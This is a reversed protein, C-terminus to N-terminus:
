LQRDGGPAHSEADQAAGVDGETDSVSRMPQSGGPVHPPMPFRQAPRSRMMTWLDTAREAETVTTGMLLANREVGLKNVEDLADKNNEALANCLWSNIDVMLEGHRRIVPRLLVADGQQELFRRSSATWGDWALLQVVGLKIESTIEQEPRNVNDIKLTHGLLPLSRHLTFNRFDQVFPVELNRLLEEKRTAFEDTIPGTRGRMIRRSHDVLTMTAAVYNHLRQVMEGEFQQKVDPRYVNQVLEFALTMDTSARDLLAQLEWWNRVFVASLVRGLGQLREYEVYGPHNSIRQEVDNIKDSRSPGTEGNPV